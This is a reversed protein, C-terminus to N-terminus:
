GRTRLVTCIFGSRPRHLALRQALAPAEPRRVSTTEPPKQEDARAWPPPARRDNEKVGPHFSRHTRTGRPLRPRLKLDEPQQGPGWGARASARGPIKPGKRLIHVRKVHLTESLSPERTLGGLVRTEATRPESLLNQSELSPSLSSRLLALGGQM